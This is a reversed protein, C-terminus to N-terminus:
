SKMHPSSHRTMAIYYLHFSMFVFKFFTDSGSDKVDFVVVACM